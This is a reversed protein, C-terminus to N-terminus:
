GPLGVVQNFNSDFYRSKAPLHLCMLLFDHPGRWVFRLLRDFDDRSLSTLEEHVNEVEKKNGTPFFFLHTLNVRAELPLMNYRQTTVWVSAGVGIHRRNFVLKLFPKVGRKISTILDDFVFLVREHPKVEKIHKELLATDFTKCLRETPLGLGKKITHTSPSFIFVKDYVRHFFRRAPKTRLFSLMLSSKGSGPGGSFVIFQSTPTNMPYPVRKWDKDEGDCTMAHHTRRVKEPAPHPKLSLEM